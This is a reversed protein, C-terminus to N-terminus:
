PKRALDNKKELTGMMQLSTVVGPNGGEAAKVAAQVVTWYKLSRPVLRLLKWVFRQQYWREADHVFCLWGFRLDERMSM